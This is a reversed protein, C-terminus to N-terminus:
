QRPSAPMAPMAQSLTRLVFRRLPQAATLLPEALPAPLVARVHAAVDYDLADLLNKVHLGTATDGEISLRRHFFLTDPDEARTALLWFDAVGGRITVDVARGGGASLRTGQILFDIQAPADSVDIRIVKGDLAMLRQALTQGRLLHNALQALLAAQLAGPLVSLPLRLPTSLALPFKPSM